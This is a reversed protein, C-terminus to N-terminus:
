VLHKKLPLHSSLDLMQENFEFFHLTNELM